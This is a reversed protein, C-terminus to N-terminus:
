KIKSQIEIGKSEQGYLLQGVLKLTNREKEKKRKYAEDSRQKVTKKKSYKKKREEKKRKTERDKILGNFYNRCDQATRKNKKKDFEISYHCLPCLSYLKGMDEGAMTEKQYSHHHVVSAGGECIYCKKKDRDLVKVRITKWLPSDLYDSYSEYGIEKLIENRSEYTSKDKIKKKGM